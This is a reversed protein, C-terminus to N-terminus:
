PKNPETRLRQLESEIQDELRQLRSELEGLKSQEERLQTAQMQEQEKLKELGIKYREVARKMDKIEFEMRARKVPDVEAEVMSELMKQQEAMRPTTSETKELQERTDALARTLRVVQENNIKIRELIIQSRYANLGTLQLTQRLLRVEKLLSKITQGDDVAPTSTQAQAHTETVISLVAFMFLCLCTRKKTTNMSNDGRRQGLRVRWGGRGRNRLRNSRHEPSLWVLAVSFVFERQTVETCRQTEQPAFSLGVSVMLCLSSQPQVCFLETLVGNPSNSAKVHRHFPM